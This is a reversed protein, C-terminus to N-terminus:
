PSALHSDRAKQWRALARAERYKGVSSTPETPCGIEKLPASVILRKRSHLGPDPLFCRAFLCSHPAQRRRLVRDASLYELESAVGCLWGVLTCRIVFLVFKAKWCWIRPHLRCPSWLAPLTPLNLSRTHTATFFHQFMDMSIQLIGAGLWLRERSSMGSRIKSAQAKRHLILEKERSM